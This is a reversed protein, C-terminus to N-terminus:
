QWGVRDFIRQATANHDGLESVNRTDAVFPMVADLRENEWEVGEVVPIENTMEAFMRQAEDSLFFAILERAEEPHPANM